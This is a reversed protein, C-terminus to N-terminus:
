LDDRNVTYGNIGLIEDGPKVGKAAADSQARVQTVLCRNGIIQCQM